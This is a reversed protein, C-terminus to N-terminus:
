CRRASIHLDGLRSTAGSVATFAAPFRPYLAMIELILEPLDVAPLMAATRARLQVLSVPGELAPDKGLHLCGDADVSVPGGAIIRGAADRWAADLEASHGALLEAPDDPLQLAALAPRRAAEWRPGDLLKARPDSWRDSVVAFIDRRKLGVHFLELVCFVYANRDVTGAPREPAFVLRQWWGPPVLDVNVRRADLWGTPVRASPRTELLEGLDRMAGLVPASDATAGFEIVQCLMKVFGRVAAFREVVAARWQGQPDAGPRHPWRM